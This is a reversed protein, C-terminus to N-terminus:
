SAAKSRKRGAQEPDAVGYEICTCKPVTCGVEARHEKHPHGCGTCREHRGHAKGESLNDSM